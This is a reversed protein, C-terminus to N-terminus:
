EKKFYLARGVEWLEESGEREREKDKEEGLQSPIVRTIRRRCKLGDMSLHVLQEVWIACSPDHRWKGVHSVIDEALSSRPRDKPFPSIEDMEHGRGSKHVDLPKGMDHKEKQEKEKEEQEEEVARRDRVVVQETEAHESNASRWRGKM